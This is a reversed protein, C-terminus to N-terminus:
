KKLAYEAGELYYDKGYAGTSISGDEGIVPDPIMKEYRLVGTVTIERRYLEPPWDYLGPLYVPIEDETLVIAGAKANEARGNITVSNGVFPKLKM